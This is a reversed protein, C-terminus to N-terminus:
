RKLYSMPDINTDAVESSLSPGINTFLDNFHKAILVHDTITNNNHKFINPYKSKSNDSKILEKLIKWTSKIDSRAFEM